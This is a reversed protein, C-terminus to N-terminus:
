ENDFLWGGVTFPREFEENFKDATELKRWFIVIVLILM